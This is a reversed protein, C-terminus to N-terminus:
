ICGKLWFIIQHFQSILDPLSISARIFCFSPTHYFNLSARTFSVLPFHQHPHHSTFRLWNQFPIQQHIPIRDASPLSMIHHHPTVSYNIPYLTDQHPHRFLWYIYLRIVFYVKSQQHPIIPSLLGVVSLDASLSSYSINHPTAHSSSPPHCYNIEYLTDQHNTFSNGISISDSFM